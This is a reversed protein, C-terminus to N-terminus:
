RRMEGWDTAIVVFSGNLCRGAGFDYRVICEDLANEDTDNSSVNDDEGEEAGFIVTAVKLPALGCELGTSGFLVNRRDRLIGVTNLIPRTQSAARFLLALNLM